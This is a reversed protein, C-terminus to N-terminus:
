VVVAAVAVVNTWSCCCRDAALGALELAASSPVIASPRPASAWCRATSLFSQVTACDCSAFPTAGSSSNSVGFVGVM